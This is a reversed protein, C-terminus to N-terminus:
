KYPFVVQAFFIYILIVFLKEQLKTKMKTVSFCEKDM